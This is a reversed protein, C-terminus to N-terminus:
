LIIDIKIKVMYIFRIFSLEIIIYNIFLINNINNIIVM